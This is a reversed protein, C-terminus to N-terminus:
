KRGELTEEVKKVIMANRSEDSYLEAKLLHFESMEELQGDSYSFDTHVMTFTPIHNKELYETKPGLYM